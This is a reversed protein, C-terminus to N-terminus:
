VAFGSVRWPESTAARSLRVRLVTPDSSTTWGDAGISTVTYSVQALAWTDTNPPQGYENALVTTVTTYGDHGALDVWAANGRAPMTTSDAALDPTFWGAARQTADLPSMDTRTDWRYLTIVAAVAVANPDGEDVTAPDIVGGRPAAVASALSQTGSATSAPSSSAAATAPRSVAPESGPTTGGCGTLMVGAALFGAGIRRGATLRATM